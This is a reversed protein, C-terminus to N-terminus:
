FYNQRTNRPSFSLPLFLLPAIPLGLLSNIYVDHRPSLFRGPCFSLTSGCREPLLPSLLREYQHLVWLCGEQCKGNGPESNIVASNVAASARLLLAAHRFCQRCKSKFPLRPQTECRSGRAWSQGPHCLCLEKLCSESCQSGCAVSYIHWPSNELPGWLEGVGEWSLLVKITQHKPPTPTSLHLPHMEKLFTNKTAIWWWTWHLSGM